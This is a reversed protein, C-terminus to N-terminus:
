VAVAVAPNTMAVKIEDGTDRGRYLRGSDSRPRDGSTGATTSARDRSGIGSCLAWRNRPADHGSPATLADSVGM